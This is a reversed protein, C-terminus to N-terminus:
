HAIQPPDIRSRSFHVLLELHRGSYVHRPEFGIAAIPEEASSCRAPLHSSDAPGLSARRRAAAGLDGDVGRALLRLPARSEPEPRREWNEHPQRNALRAIPHRKTTPVPSLQSLVALAITSKKRCCVSRSSVM